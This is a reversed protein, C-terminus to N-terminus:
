DDGLRSKVFILRMEYVIKGMWVGACLGVWNGELEFSGSGGVEM